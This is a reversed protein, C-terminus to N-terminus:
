PRVRREKLVERLINELRECAELPMQLAAQRWRAEIAEREPEEIRSWPKVARVMPELACNFRELQHVSNVPRERDKTARQGGSGSLVNWLNREGSLLKPEWQAKTEPREAFLTAVRRALKWVEASVGLRACLDARPDDIVFSLKSENLTSLPKEGTKRGYKLNAQRRAELAKVYEPMLALALYMKAGRTLSRQGLLTETAILAAQDEPVELCRIEPWQWDQAAAVRRRGDLVLSGAIFIPPIRDPGAAHVNESFSAWAPDNRDVGPLRALLPPPNLM